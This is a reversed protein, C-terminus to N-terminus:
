KTKSFPKLITTTMSRIGTPGTLKWGMYKEVYERFTMMVPITLKRKDTLFNNREVDIRASNVTVGQLDIYKM